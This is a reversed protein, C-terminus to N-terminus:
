LINRHLLTCLTLVQTSQSVRMHLTPTITANKNAELLIKITQRSAAGECALHLPFKHFRDSIKAAEPSNELLLQILNDSDPMFSCAYHLSTWGFYDSQDLNGEGNMNILRELDKLPFKSKIAENLVNRLMAGSTSKRGALLSAVRQKLQQRDMCTMHISVPKFKEFFEFGFHEENGRIDMM